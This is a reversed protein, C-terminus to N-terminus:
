LLVSSRKLLNKFCFLIIYYTTGLYQANKKEDWQITGDELLEGLANRDTYDRATCRYVKGNYNILAHWFRDAYCKYCKGFLFANSPSGQSYGLDHCKNFLDLRQVNKELKGSDTQWIRQLNISIFKRFEVPIQEFISVMDCQLLTQDDDNVRLVIRIGSIFECLLNVNNIITDFSPKGNEHRIKDHRKKDGDLTIQFSNFDIMMM